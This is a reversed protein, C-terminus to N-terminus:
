EERELMDELEQADRKLDDLAGLADEHKVERVFLEIESVYMELNSILRKVDENM